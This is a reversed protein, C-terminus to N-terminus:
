LPERKKLLHIEMFDLYQVVELALVPSKNVLPILSYFCMCSMGEDVLLHGSTAQPLIIGVGCRLIREKPFGM